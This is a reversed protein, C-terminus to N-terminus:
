DAKKASPAAAGLATEVARNVPVVRDPQRRIDARFRRRTLARRLQSLLSKMKIHTGRHGPSPTLGHEQMMALGEKRWLDRRIASGPLYDITSLTQRCYRMFLLDRCRESGTNLFHWPSDDARLMQLLTTRKWLAPDAKVRHPSDAAIVGFRDNAPKFGPEDEPSARYALYDVGRALCYRLDNCFETTDVPRTFFQDEQVYLVYETTVENLAAILNGGWGKDEGVPLERVGGEDLRFRNTILRVTFPNDPWQKKFFFFFPIWADYFWDCSTVLITVSQRLKGIDPQHAQSM